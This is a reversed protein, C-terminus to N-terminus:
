RGGASQGLRPRNERYSEKHSKSLCIGGSSHPEKLFGVHRGQGSTRTFPTSKILLAKQAQSKSSGEM